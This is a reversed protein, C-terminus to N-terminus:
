LREDLNRESKRHNLNTIAQAFITQFRDALTEETGGDRLATKVSALVSDVPAGPLRHIRNLGALWNEATEGDAIFEEYPKEGGTDLPTLLVPYRNGSIGNAFDTALQRAEAESEVHVPELGHQHLLRDGIEVLEILAQAPDLDPIVITEGEGLVSALLCLEGSEAPSVFYRKTARPLALPEGNALRQGWAQLLSGNSFAVNAFRATVTRSLPLPHHNFVVDEMLRKSAGMLSSPNAAKDTSVSFFSQGHGGAACWERFSALKVINTEIMSALTYGDREGRVHKHAAFNLVYDYPAEHALLHRMPEGGYDLTFTRFDESALPIASNRLTRVLDALYNESIDAIHLAATDYSALLKVTSSGISGAGGAVLVRANKLAAALHTESVTMAGAFLSTERGTALRALSDSTGFPGSFFSSTTTTMRGTNLMNPQPVNYSTEICFVAELM